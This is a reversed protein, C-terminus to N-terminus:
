NNDLTTISYIIFQYDNNRKEIKGIIKYVSNTEIEGIKKYENPFLIGEISSHEDTLKIFSMKENNKTKITKVDEVYLISTITRNFYNRVNNLTVLNERNYKTVPHFSLYFGYNKIENTIQEKDTFDQIEEFIPTEILTISLDKCLTAYNIVEDINEIYMKKNIKFENFAGCEILSVIVKKNIGKGYCRIVFDYLSSFKSKQREEEIENSVNIGISKILSFPFVLKNNKIIFEKCSNNIDILSFEIGLLKAEDIYEKIKNSSKNMNLLNRM